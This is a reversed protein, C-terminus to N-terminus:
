PRDPDVAHALDRDSHPMPAGDIEFTERRPFKRERRLGRGRRARLMGAGGGGDPVAGARRASPQHLPHRCFTRQLVLVPRWRAPLPGSPGAGDRRVPEVWDITNKWFRRSPANNEPTAILIGDHAAIQPCTEARKRSRGIKELDEDLIPLSLRRALHPDGGRRAHCTGEAGRRRDKGSYAGARNSGAFVLIKPIVMPWGHQRFLYLWPETWILALHPRVARALFSIRKAGTSGCSSNAPHQPLHLRFAQRQLQRPRGPDPSMPGHDCICSRGDMPNREHLSEYLRHAPRRPFQAAARRFHRFDFMM